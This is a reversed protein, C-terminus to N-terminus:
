RGLSLRGALEMPLGAEIIKEQTAALDYDTRYFGVKENFEDYILFSARPDRDRSQGVSGPNILYRKWASLKLEGDPELFVKGRQLSLAVRV